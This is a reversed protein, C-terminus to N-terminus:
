CSWLWRCDTTLTAAMASGGALLERYEPPSLVLADCSLPLAALPWALRRQHQPGATSCCCISIAAWAPM